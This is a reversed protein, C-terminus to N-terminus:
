SSQSGSALVITTSCSNMILQSLLLFEITRSTYRSSQFFAPSFSRAVVRSRTTREDPPRWRTENGEDCTRPGLLPGYLM